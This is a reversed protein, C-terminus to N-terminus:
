RGIFTWWDYLAYQVKDKKLTQLLRVINVSVVTSLLRFGVMHMKHNQCVQSRSDTLNMLGSILRYVELFTIIM